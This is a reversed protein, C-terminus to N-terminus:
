STRSSFSSSAAHHGQYGMLMQYIAFIKQAADGGDFQKAANEQAHKCIALAELPQDVCFQIAHM